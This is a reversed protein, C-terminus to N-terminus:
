LFVLHSYGPFAVIMCQLGGCSVTLFPGLVSVTLFILLCKFNFLWSEIERKRKRLSIIDFSSVVSLLADLM